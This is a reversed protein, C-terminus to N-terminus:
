VAGAFLGFLGGRCRHLLAARQCRGLRLVLEVRGVEIWCWMFTGCASLAGTGNSVTDLRNLEVDARALSALAV